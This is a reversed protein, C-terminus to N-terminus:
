ILPMGFYRHEGVKKGHEYLCEEGSFGVSFTKGDTHNRYMLRGSPEAFSEPGRGGIFKGDMYVILLVRRLFQIDEKRYFGGYSMFWIPNPSYFSFWITTTGFSGKEGVCWRDLIRFDGIGYDVEKYGSMGPVDKGKEGSPWGHMMAVFFYDKAMELIEERVM